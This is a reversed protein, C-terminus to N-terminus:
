SENMAMSPTGSDRIICNPRQFDLAYLPYMLIHFMNKSGFYSFTTNKKEKNLKYQIKLLKMAAAFVIYKLGSSTPTHIQPDEM